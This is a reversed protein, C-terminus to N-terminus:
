FFLHGSNMVGKGVEVGDAVKGIGPLVGLLILFPLKAM